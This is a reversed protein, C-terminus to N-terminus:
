AELSVVWKKDKASWTLVAGEDLGDLNVDKLERLSSAGAVGRPGQPGVISEGPPGVPGVAGQVAKPMNKLQLELSEIRKVLDSVLSDLNSTSKSSNKKILELIDVNNEDYLSKVGRIKLLTCNEGKLGVFNGNPNSGVQPM